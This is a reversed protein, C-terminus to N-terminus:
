LYVSLHAHLVSHILCVPANLNQKPLFPHYLGKGTRRLFIFFASHRKSYPDDYYPYDAAMNKWKYFRCNLIRKKASRGTKSGACERLSDITTLYEKGLFEKYNKGPPVEQLCKTSDKFLLNQNGESKFMNFGVLSSSHGFMTQFACLDLDLAWDWPTLDANM